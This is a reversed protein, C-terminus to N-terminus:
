QRVSELRGSERDPYARSMLVSQDIPGSNMVKFPPVVTRDFVLFLGIKVGVRLYDAQHLLTTVSTPNM